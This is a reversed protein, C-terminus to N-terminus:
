NIINFRQILLEKYTRGLPIEHEKIIIQHDSLAISEIKHINIVYQKHVRIFDREPLQQFVRTLSLNVAFRNKNVYIISYNGKSGIYDIESLIVKKLHKGQKLFLYENLQLKNYENESTETKNDM